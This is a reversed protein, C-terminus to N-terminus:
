GAAKSGGIYRARWATAARGIESQLLLATTLAVLLMITWWWGAERLLWGAFRMREAGPSPPELAWSLWTRWGESWLLLLLVGASAGYFARRLGVRWLATVGPLLLVLLIARYGINRATLFCGLVLLAGALLFARESPTLAAIDGRLSAGLGLWGGLVLAWTLLLLEVLLAAGPSWGLGEMLGGATTLGGFMDGIAEGPPILALARALDKGDIAVFVALAAATALAVLAFMRPRERTALAMLVLPYYKLLGALLALGYGLLRLGQGRTSFAASCAALVFIVLDNNGRETAFVVATSVIGATIMCTARWDRSPPLLLLSALFCLDLGLGVPAIWATTVPLSSAALWIPSYDFVRGLADCPNTVFVDVGQRRCRLASLVTDTDLFPFRFPIVGWTAIIRAYLAHDGAVYLAALAAFVTAGAM